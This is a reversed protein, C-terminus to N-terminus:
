PVFVYKGAARGEALKRYASLVNDFGVTILDRQPAFDGSEFYPLLLSFIRDVDAFPVKISDVGFLTSENHYFDILDFTVRREPQSAIAVYRGRFKLARLCPEFLTGGVADLIADVGRGGTKSRVQEALAGPALEILDDVYDTLRERVADMHKRVVGIVRADCIRKAIRAGADGVAGTVGTVLLTEGKKLLATDKIARWATLYPIGVTAAQEFTMSKPKPKVAELPVEIFEAHSGDRSFGLSGGTGFVPTGEPYADTSVAVVGAFDRGPIRPVTTEQMKGLVNKADSPNLAAAKVRVLLSGSRAKPDPVESIKLADLSGVQDFILAKM